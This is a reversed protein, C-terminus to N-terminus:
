RRTANRGLSEAHREHAAREADNMAEVLEPYQKLKKATTGTERELARWSPPDRGANEASRVLSLAHGLRRQREDPSLRRWDVRPFSESAATETRQEASTSPAVSRSPEEVVDSARRPGRDLASALEEDRREREIMDSAQQWTRPIPGGDLIHLIVARAAVYSGTPWPERYRRTNFPERDRESVDLKGAIDNAWWCLGVHEHEPWHDLLLLLERYLTARRGANASAPFLAELRDHFEQKACFDGSPEISHPGHVYETCPVRQV